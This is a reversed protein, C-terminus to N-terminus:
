KRIENEFRSRIDEFRVRALKHPVTHGNEWRNVTAYSIGLLEAFETQSLKLVTRLNKVENRFDNKSVM